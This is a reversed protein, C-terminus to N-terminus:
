NYTQRASTPVCEFTYTTANRFSIGFPSRHQPSVTSGRAPRSDPCVSGRERVLETQIYEEEGEKLKFELLSGKQRLKNSKEQICLM